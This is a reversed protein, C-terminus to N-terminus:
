LNRQLLFKKLLKSKHFHLFYIINYILYTIEYQHWRWYSIVDMEYTQNFIMQKESNSKGIYIIKIEQAPRAAFEIVLCPTLRTPATYYTVSASIVARVSFSLESTSVVSKKLPFIRYVDQSNTVHEEQGATRLDCHAFRVAVPPAAMQDGAAFSLYAVPSLTANLELSSVERTAGPKGSTLVVFGNRWSVDVRAIGATGSRAFVDVPVPVEFGDGSLGTPYATLSM